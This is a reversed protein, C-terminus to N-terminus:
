KMQLAECYVMGKQLFLALHKTSSYRIRPAPLPSTDKGWIVVVSDGITPYQYIDLRENRIVAQVVDNTYVFSLELISLQEIDNGRYSAYSGSM